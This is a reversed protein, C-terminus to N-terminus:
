QRKAKGNKLAEDLLKQMQAEASAKQKQEADKLLAKERLEQSLKAAQAQVNAAQAQVNAAQAQVYAEQALLEKQRTGLREQLEALQSQLHSLDDATWAHQKAQSLEDNLKALRSRAEEVRKEIEEAPLQSPQQRWILMDQMAALKMAQRAQQETSSELPALQKARAVLAPDDIVYEVGDREFVIVSAGPKVVVQGEVGNVIGGAAGGPIGGAVGGSIGGPVGGAVIPGSGRATVIKWGDGEEVDIEPGHWPPRVWAAPPPPAPLPPSPLGPHSEPEAPPAPAALPAPPGAPPAPAAPPPPPPPSQEAGLRFAFGATGAVLVAALFSVAVRQWGSLLAQRPMGTLIRSVREKVNASRAMAVGWAAPQGESAVELLVDAYTAPSAGTELAAEDALVESVESLRRELWWSLPSFWFVAAHLKALVGWAFDHQEVHCQEHRVVADIKAGTWGLADEPL